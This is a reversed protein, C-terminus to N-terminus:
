EWIKKGRRVIEEEMIRIEGDGCRGIERDKGKVM